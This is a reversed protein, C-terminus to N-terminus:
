LAGLMYALSCKPGLLPSTVHSERERDAQGDTQGDPERCIESARVCLCECVCVCVCVCM